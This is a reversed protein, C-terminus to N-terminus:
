GVVRKKGIATLSIAFAGFPTFPARFDLNFNNSSCKGHSLMFEDIEEEGEEVSRKLQFNRASAKQVRGFFNLTYCGRQENYKPPLNEFKHAIKDSGIFKPRLNFLTIRFSRPKEAFFNSDYDITQVHRQRPLFGKPLDGMQKADFGYDYLEFWTGAFNPRLVGIFNKGYLTFDGDVSSIVFESNESTRTAYLFSTQKGERKLEYFHPYDSFVGMESKSRM